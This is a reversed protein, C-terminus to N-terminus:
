KRAKRKDEIYTVVSIGSAKSRKIKGHFGQQRAWHCIATNVIGVLAMADSTTKCRTVSELCDDPSIGGLMYVLIADKSVAISPMHFTKVRVVRADHSLTKYEFADLIHQKLVRFLVTKGWAHLEYQLWIHPTNVAKCRAKSLKKKKIVPMHIGKNLVTHKWITLGLNDM